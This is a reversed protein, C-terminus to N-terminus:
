GPSRKITPCDLWVCGSGSGFGSGSGYISVGPQTWGWGCVYVPGILSGRDSLALFYDQSMCDSPGSGTGTSYRNAEIVENIGRLKLKETKSKEEM